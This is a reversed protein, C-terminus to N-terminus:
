ENLGWRPQSVYSSSTPLPALPETWLSPSTTLTRFPSTMAPLETEKCLFAFNACAALQRLSARLTTVNVARGPQSALLVVLARSEASGSTLWRDLCRRIDDSIGENPRLALVIMQAEGADYAALEFLHADRLVGFKWLHSEFQVLNDHYRTLTEFFNKALVGTSFDEYALLINLQAGIAPRPMRPIAPAHKYRM